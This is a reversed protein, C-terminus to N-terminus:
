LGPLTTLLQLTDNEERLLYGLRGLHIGRIPPSPEPFGEPFCWDPADMSGRAIAQGKRLSGVEADTLMRKAAWPLVAPGSIERMAGDGPDCWPGIASRNLASLHAGCGLARGLDRALSRVYYGGRSVLRVESSHPLDHRLWTAEHLYVRSPPLKFSEGRHAKVYAREGDIRKNSTTPPVQEHWGVFARLAADLQEPALQTADGKFITKGLPDSNDTEIGWRITARYTKPIDHLYEFLRTAPYVLILLLGSAFPDLAGGHCLRPTKSSNEARARRLV